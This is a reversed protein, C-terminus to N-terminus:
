RMKSKKKSSEIAQTCVEIGDLPPANEAKQLYERFDHVVSATMSKSIMSEFMSTPDERM